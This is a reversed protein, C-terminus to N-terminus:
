QHSAPYYIPISMPTPDPSHRVESFETFRFNLKQSQPVVRDMFAALEGASWSAGITGGSARIVMAMWTREIKGNSLRSSSTGFCEVEAGTPETFEGPEAEVTETSTGKAKWRTVVEDPGPAEQYEITVSFDPLMTHFQEVLNRVGDPGRVEDARIAPAYLTFDTAILDKVVNLDKQNVVQEWFRRTIAKNAESSVSESSM